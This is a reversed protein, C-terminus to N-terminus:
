FDHEIGEFKNDDAIIVAYMRDHIMYHKYVHMYKNIEETQYPTFLNSGNINDTIIRKSM